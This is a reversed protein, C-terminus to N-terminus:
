EGYTKQIHAYDDQTYYGRYFAKASWRQMMWVVFATVIAIVAVFILANDQTAASMSDIGNELNPAGQGAMLLAVVAVFGSVLVTATFLRRVWESRVRWAAVGFVLVAIAIAVAGMFSDFELGSVDVGAMAQNEIRYFLENTAGFFIVVAMPIVVFIMFSLLIALSVGFPRHPKPNTIRSSESVIGDECSSKQLM